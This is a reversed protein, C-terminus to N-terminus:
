HREHTPDPREARLALEREHYEITWQTDRILKERRAVNERFSNAVDVGHQSLLTM